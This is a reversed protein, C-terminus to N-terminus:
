IVTLMKPDIRFSEYFYKLQRITLCHVTYRLFAYMNIKVKNYYFNFFMDFYKVNYM